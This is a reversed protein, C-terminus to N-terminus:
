LCGEHEAFRWEREWGSEEGREAVWATTPEHGQEPLRRAILRAVVVAGGVGAPQAIVAQEEAEDGLGVHMAPQVFVAKVKAARVFRGPVPEDGVGQGAVKVGCGALLGACDYTLLSKLAPRSGVAQEPKRGPSDVPSTPPM